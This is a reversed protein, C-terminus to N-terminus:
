RLVLWGGALLLGIGLLRVLDFSRVELDLLGYHDFLAGVALQGTVVLAVAAAVGIRPIIYSVACILIVGLGGAALAFWPLVRWRGLGGGGMLALPVAAIVLGGLHIIFAGELVGVRQGMHGAIPNQIGVAVGGLLGVVISVLVVNM